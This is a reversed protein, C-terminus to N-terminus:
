LGWGGSTPSRNNDVVVCTRPTTAETPWSVWSLKRNGRPSTGLNLIEGPADWLFNYQCNEMPLFSTSPFIQYSSPYQVEGYAMMLMVERGRLHQSPSLHHTPGHTAEPLPALNCTRAGSRHFPVPLILLKPQSILFKEDYLGYWEFELARGRFCPSVTGAGRGQGFDRQTFLIIFHLRTWFFVCFVNFVNSGWEIM